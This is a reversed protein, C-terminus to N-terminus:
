RDESPIRFGRIVRANGDGDARGLAILTRNEDFWGTTADSHAAAVDNDVFDEATLCQGLRARRVGESTLMRTPMVRTVVESLSLLRLPSSSPWVTAEELRFCGSSTRRLAALHAPVGLAHGLDRALARVYYGKSVLLELTVQDDSWALVDLAHVRVNRAPVEVLEGRRHRRYAAIGDQKIASVRPPLQEVRAREVALAAELRERTLWGPVIPCTEVAHGMADDTDTMMGFRVTALYSKQELTLASSLKTAEEVLLLLVGSAMPDLTGAHGISRTRLVRRAQAVIDHSTPGSPKDVVLLGSHTSTM